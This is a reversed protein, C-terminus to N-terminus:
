LDKYDPIMSAPIFNQYSFQCDIFTCITYRVIVLLENLRGEFKLLLTERESEELNKANYSATWSSFYRVFTYMVERFQLYLHMLEPCDFYEPDDSFSLVSILLAMIYVMRYASSDTMRWAHLHLWELLLQLRSIDRLIQNLRADTELKFAALNKKSSAVRVLGQGGM